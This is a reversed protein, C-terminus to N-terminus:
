SATEPDESIPRRSIGGCGIAEDWPNGYDRDNQQDSAMQVLDATKLGGYPPLRLCAKAEAWLQDRDRARSDVDIRGLSRGSVAAAQRTERYTHHNVTAALFCQPPSEVLRKSYPPLHGTATFMTVVTRATNGIEYEFSHRRIGAM